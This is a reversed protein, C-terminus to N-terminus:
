TLAVEYIVSLASSSVQRLLHVRGIFDMLRGPITILVDYAKRFAAPRKTYLAKMKVAEKWMRKLWEGM